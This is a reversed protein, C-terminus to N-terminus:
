IYHKPKETKDQNNNDRSGQDIIKTYNKIKSFEQANSLQDM